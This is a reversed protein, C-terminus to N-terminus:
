KCLYGYATQGYGPPQLEIHHLHAGYAVLRIAMPEADALTATVTDGDMRYTAAHESSKDGLVRIRGDEIEISNLCTGPYYLDSVRKPADFLAWRGLLFPPVIAQNRDYGKLTRYEELFRSYGLAKRIESLYLDPETGRLEAYHTKAARDAYTLFVTYAAFALIAIGIGLATLRQRRALKLETM